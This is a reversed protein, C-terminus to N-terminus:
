VHARGIEPDGLTSYSGAQMGVERIRVTRWEVIDGPRVYADGGRWVGENRGGAKGYFILQGHTRGISPFPKPLSTAVSNLAEAAVDWCEGRAVPRRSAVARNVFAVLLPGYMESAAYLREGDWPAPIPRYRGERTMRSPDLQGRKEESASWGLKWWAISCDGFLCIGVLSKQDGSQTWSGTWRIDSRDVLPPPTPTPLSYWATTYPEYLIYHLVSLASSSHSQSPPYSRVASISTTGRSLTPRTSLTM